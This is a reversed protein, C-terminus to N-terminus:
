FPNVARALWVLPRPVRVPLAAAPAGGRHRAGLLLSLLAEMLQDRGGSLPDELIPDTHSKGEFITEDVSVGARRLARALARSHEPGVTRDAAGHFLAIPPLWSDTAGAPGDAEAGRGRELKEALCCPCHAALDGAVLADMVSHPLLRRGHYERRLLHMDHPGSIGVWRMIVDRPNWLPGSTAGAAAIAKKGPTRAASPPPAATAADARLRLAQRLLLVATLQAGASQGVLTVRAPDGGWAPAAQVAWALAAEVDDVMGPVDAQPFNRYDVSICLVGNLQLVHGMLFSWGRFGIIWAGGSVFVLVPCGGDKLAAGKPLFVDARRRAGDGYPVGRLVQPSRRYHYLFMPLMGPLMFFAFLGLRVFYALWGVLAAAWWVLPSSLRRVAM